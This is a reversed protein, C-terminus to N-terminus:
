TQARPGNCAPSKSTTADNTLAMKMSAMSHSASASAVSPLDNTFHITLNDGPNVVFTPAEAGNNTVYCYRVLRQSDTVTYFGISVKSCATRAKSCPPIRFLLGTACRTCFQDDPATGTAAPSILKSLDQASVAGRGPYKRQTQSQATATLLLLAHCNPFYRLRWSSPVAIDFM